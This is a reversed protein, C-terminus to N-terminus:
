KVKTLNEKLNISSDIKSANVLVSNLKLSVYDAEEKTNYNAITETKTSITFM